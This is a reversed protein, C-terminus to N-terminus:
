KAKPFLNSFVRDVLTFRVAMSNEENEEDIENNGDAVVVFYYKGPAVDPM